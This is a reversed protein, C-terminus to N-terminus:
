MALTTVAQVRDDLRQAVTHFQFSVGDDDQTARAAPPTAQDDGPDEPRAVGAAIGDGLSGPHGLLFSTELHTVNAVCSRRARPSPLDLAIEGHEGCPRRAKM